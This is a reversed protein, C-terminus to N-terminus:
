PLPPTLLLVFNPSTNTDPYVLNIYANTTERQRLDDIFFERKGKIRDHAPDYSINM